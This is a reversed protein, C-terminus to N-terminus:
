TQISNYGTKNRDALQVSTPIGPGTFVIIMITIRYMLTTAKVFQVGTM